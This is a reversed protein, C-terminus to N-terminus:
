WHLGKVLSLMLLRNSVEWEPLLPKMPRVAPQEQEAVVVCALGVENAAVDVVFAEWASCAVQHSSRQRAVFASADEVVFAALRSELAVM